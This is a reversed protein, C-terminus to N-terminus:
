KDTYPWIRPSPLITSIDVHLLTKGIGLRKFLNYSIIRDVLEWMQETSNISIDAAEGVKGESVHASNPVGGVEANHKICRCGSNIYLPKGYLSRLQQLRRVLEISVNDNGCGCKCRFESRDFDATLDGM